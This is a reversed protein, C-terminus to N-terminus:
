EAIRGSRIPFGHRIPRIALRDLLMGVLTVIIITLPFALLLSLGAAVHLFVMILGGLVVFEGQALNIIETVNYIINFGIAVMAYISGVTLGTILYQILQSALTIKEM